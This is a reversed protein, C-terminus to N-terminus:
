KMRGQESSSVPNWASDSFEYLTIAYGAIRIELSDDVSMYSREYLRNYETQKRSFHALADATNGFEQGANVFIEGAFNIATGVKFRNM